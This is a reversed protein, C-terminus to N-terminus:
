SIIGLISAREQGETACEGEVKKIANNFDRKLRASNCINSASCINPDSQCVEDVFVSTAYAEVQLKVFVLMDGGTSHLLDEVGEFDAADM